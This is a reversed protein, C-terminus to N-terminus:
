NLRVFGNGIATNVFSDRFRKDQAKSPNNQYLSFLLPQTTREMALEHYITAAFSVSRGNEVLVTRHQFICDIKELTMVFYVGYSARLPTTLPTIQPHRKHTLDNISQMLWRLSTHLMMSHQVANYCYEVSYREDYFKLLGSNIHYRYADQVCMQIM